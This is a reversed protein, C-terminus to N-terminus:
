FIAKVPLHCKICLSRIRRILLWFLSIKQNPNMQQREALGDENVEDNPLLFAFNSFVGHVKDAYMDLPLQTWAHLCYAYCLIIPDTISVLTYRTDSSSLSESLPCPSERHLPSSHVSTAPAHPQGSAKRSSPATHAFTYFVYSLFGWTVGPVPFEGVQWLLTFPPLVASVLWTALVCLPKYVM